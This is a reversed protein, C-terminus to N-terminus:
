NDIDQKLQENLFHRKLKGTKEERLVLHTQDRVDKVQLTLIDGIRLGTNIGFVFLLCDRTGNKLLENKMREIDDLDRIPQVVNM